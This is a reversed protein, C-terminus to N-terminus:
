DLMLGCIQWHPSRARKPPKTVMTMRGAFARVREGCTYSGFFEAAGADAIQIHVRRLRLGVRNGPGIRAGHHARGRSLVHDAVTDAVFPAMASVPRRRDIVELVVTMAAIAFERAAIAAADPAPPPSPVVHLARVPPSDIRAHTAEEACDCRGAWRGPHEFPPAPRVVVNSTDM